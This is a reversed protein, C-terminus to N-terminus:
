NWKFYYAQGDSGNTGTTGGLNGPAGLGGKAEVVLGAPQDFASVVAIFGGGGGGGGGGAGVTGNFTAGNGGNASMTATGSVVIKYACIVAIKGGGGGGGGSATAVAAAGGGAGSGGFLKTSASGPLRCGDMFVYISRVYFPGTTTAPAAITGGAGGIFSGANGGTGGVGGLGNTIATGANGNIGASASSGGNGGNSGGQFFRTSGGQGATANSANTGNATIRAGDELTLTGRVQILWGNADLTVGAAITLNDYQVNSQLQTNSTITASGNIAAGYFWAATDVAPSGDPLVIADGAIFSGHTVLGTAPDIDGVLLKRQAM